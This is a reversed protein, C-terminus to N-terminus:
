ECAIGVVFSLVFYRQLRNNPLLSFGFDCCSQREFMIAGSVWPRFNKCGKCWKVEIKEDMQLWVTVDCQTCVGKNQRPIIHTTEVEHKRRGAALCVRLKGCMVCHKKGDARSSTNNNGRGKTLFDPFNVIRAFDPLAHEALANRSGWFRNRPPHKLPVCRKLSSASVQQWDLEDKLNTENNNVTACHPHAFPPYPATPAASGYWPPPYPYGHPAFHPPPPPPYPHHHHPPPPPFGPEGQWTPYMNAPHPHHHHHWHPPLHPQAGSSEPSSEEDETNEEEDDEDDDDERKENSSAPSIVPQEKEEDDVDANNSKNSNFDASREQLPSNDEHENSVQRKDLPDGASFAAFPPPYYMTGRTGLYQLHHYPSWSPPCRLSAHEGHCSSAEEAVRSEKNLKIPSHYLRHNGGRAVGAVAPAGSSFCDMPTIPNMIPSDNATAADMIARKGSKRNSLSLLLGAGQAPHHPDEEESSAENGANEVPGNQYPMIPSNLVGVLPIVCLSSSNVSTCRM